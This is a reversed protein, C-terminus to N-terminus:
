FIGGVSKGRSEKICEVLYTLSHLMWLVGVTLHTLIGIKFVSGLITVSVFVIMFGMQLAKYSKYCAKYAAMKEYEDCSEFWEKQFNLNLVDGKKEPNLVKEFNIVKRQMFAFFLIFFIFLVTMVTFVLTSYAGINASMIGIMIFLLITGVTTTAVAISLQREITDFVDENDVDLTKFGKSAKTYYAFFLLIFLVGIVPILVPPLQILTHNFAQGLDRISNETGAVVGGVIGGGITCIVLILIFKWLAKDKM